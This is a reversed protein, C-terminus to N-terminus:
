SLKAQSSKASGVVVPVDQLIEWGALEDRSALILLLKDGEDSELSVYPKKDKGKLGKAVVTFFRQNM